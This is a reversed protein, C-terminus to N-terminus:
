FINFVKKKTEAIIVGATVVVSGAIFLPTITEGLWFVALPISFLPNLYSFLSQEGIEITKQAKNSLYYALSGSFLAMYLVGM